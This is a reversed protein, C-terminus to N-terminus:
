GTRRARGERRALDWTAAFIVRAGIWTWIESIEGFLAFGFLAVFPLQLFNFPMVLSAPAATLARVLAQQAGLTFLGVLLMWGWDALGPAIWVFAAPVIGVLAQLAYTYFVTVNPSETSSLAKACAHGISFAFAGGLTVVAALSVETFGPRLIVLTGAFGIAIVAWRHASARDGLVLVAILVTFLPSTFNLANVDAMPMNAVGYVWMVGGVYIAVVRTVHLKLRTTALAITGSRVLWPLMLVTCVAARVFILEIASFKFTVQRLTAYLAAYCLAAICMWAIGRASPSLASWGAIQRRAIM